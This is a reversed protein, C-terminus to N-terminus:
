RYCSDALDFTKDTVSYPSSYVNDFSLDVWEEECNGLDIKYSVQAPRDLYDFYAFLNAFRADENDSCQVYVSKYRDVLSGKIPADLKKLTTAWGRTDFFVSSTAMCGNAVMAYQVFQGQVTRLVHVEYPTSYSYYHKSTFFEKKEMGRKRDHTYRYYLVTPAKAAYTTNKTTRRLTVDATFVEPFEYCPYALSSGVALAVILCTLGGSFYMDPASFVFM